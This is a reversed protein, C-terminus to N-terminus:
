WLYLISIRFFTVIFDFSEFITLFVFLLGSSQNWKSFIVTRLNQDRCAILSMKVAFKINLFLFIWLKWIWANKSFLCTFDNYVDSIYQCSFNSKWQIRTILWYFIGFFCSEYHLLFRSLCMKWFLKLDPLYIHSFFIKSSM